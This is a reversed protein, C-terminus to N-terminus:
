TPGCTQAGTGGDVIIASWKAITTPSSGSTVLKQGPVPASQQGCTNIWGGSQEDWPYYNNDTDLPGPELTVVDKYSLNSSLWSASVAESSGSDNVIAACPGIPMGQDFCDRFERRYVYGGSSGSIPDVM